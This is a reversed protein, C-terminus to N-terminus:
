RFYKKIITEKGTEELINAGCEKLRRAAEQEGLGNKGVELKQLFESLSVSYENGQPSCIKDNGGTLNKGM